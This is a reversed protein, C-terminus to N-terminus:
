TEMHISELEDAHSKEWPHLTEVERILKEHKASRSKINTKFPLPHSITGPTFRVVPEIKEGADNSGKTIDFVALSRAVTLWVSSDALLKGPCIRRGFGFVFNFPDPAPESGLFREPDFTTPHSYVDPDHTFWWINQIFLAGKPILYGEYTDDATTVHPLGMPAIPHWRFTEKVVAEIYPLRNRDDFNPLRDTGIVRDIEGQARIQVEPHLTMALFFSSMTSVSTDAGGAYLTAATWKITYEDRTGADGSPKDYLSSVYSPEYHGGSLQKRVFRMPKEAFQELTARWEKATTKFGTGPMWDPLYRLAPISDVLWAGPVVAESFQRIARDATDVLPDERHTEVTYGYAIKLIIAGAETRVHKILDSPTELVRFLFRHVEIEQLPLFRSLSARTGLVSHMSKRHNRLRDGYALPGTTQNWGCMDGGFVSQPRSSYIPSRKELLEGTAQASNLIVITTGLLSVSSIPGYLDKHKLWHEWERVGPPPLDNLNGVIPWGKPGPPLPLKPKRKSILLRATGLLVAGLVLATVFISTEAM